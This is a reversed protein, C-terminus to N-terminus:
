GAMAIPAIQHSTACPAGSRYFIPLAARVTQVTDALTSPDVHVYRMTMKMTTHGLLRQLVHIPTGAAAMSTAYTHRFVHWGFPKM